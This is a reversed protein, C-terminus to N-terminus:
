AGQSEIKISKVNADITKRVLDITLLGNELEASSVEVGEALAYTKQFQRAAVGRYIYEREEEDRKRGRVVLQQNDLLVSLDERAFGAVALTLRWVGDKRQEINYP